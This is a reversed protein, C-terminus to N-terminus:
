RRGPSRQPTARGATRREDVAFGLGGLAEIIRPLDRRNGGGSASPNCIVLM